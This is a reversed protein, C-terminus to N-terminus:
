VESQDDEEEKLRDDDRSSKEKLRLLSSREASILQSVSSGAATHTHAHIHAHAQTHTHSLSHKKPNATMNGDDSLRM